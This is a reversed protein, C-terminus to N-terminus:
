PYRVVTAAASIFAMHYVFPLNNSACNTLMHIGQKDLTPILESEQDLRQLHRLGRCNYRTPTFDLIPRASITIHQVSVHTTRKHKIGLKVFVRDVYRDM